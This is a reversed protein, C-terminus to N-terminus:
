GTLVKNECYLGKLKVRILFYRDVKKLLSEFAVSLIVDFSLNLVVPFHLVHCLLVFSHSHKNFIIM